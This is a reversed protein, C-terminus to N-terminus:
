VLRSRMGTALPLKVGEDTPWPMMYNGVVDSRGGLLKVASGVGVHEVVGLLSDKTAHLLEYADYRELRPSGSPAGTGSRM